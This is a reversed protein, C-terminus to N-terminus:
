NEQLGFQGLVCSRKEARENSIPKHGVVNYECTKSITYRRHLVM